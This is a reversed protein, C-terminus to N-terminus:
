PAFHLQLGGFYNRPLGPELFARSAGSGSPNIFASAAYKKNALNNAGLFGELHLNGLKVGYGLSVNLVFYSPVWITNADDAYYFGAHEFGFDATGGLPAEYRLGGNLLIRPIGPVKNDSFDGLENAYDIYKADMLTLATRASIGQTFAARAGAEFGYRRSKGASFYWTGGDFPIIENKLGIWYAALDYSLTRLLPISSIQTTGKAGIEV